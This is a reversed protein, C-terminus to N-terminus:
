KILRKKMGYLSIPFFVGFFLVLYLLNFLLSVNMYGLGLARCIKVLHTLPFM